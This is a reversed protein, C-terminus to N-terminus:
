RGRRLEGAGADGRRVDAHDAREELLAADLRGDIRRSPATSVLMWSPTASTIASTTSVPLVSRWAPGPPTRRSRDELGLRHQHGAAARTGAPKSTKLRRM